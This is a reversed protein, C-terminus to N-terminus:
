RKGQPAFTRSTVTEVCSCSTRPTACFHKNYIGGAAIRQMYNLRTQSKNSVVSFVSFVSHKYNLRRRSHLEHTIIRLNLDLKGVCHLRGAAPPQVIVDETNETNETTLLSDGPRRLSFM